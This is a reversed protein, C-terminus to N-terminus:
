PAGAEPGATRRLRSFRATGSAPTGTATDFHVEKHSANKTAANQPAAFIECAWGLAGAGATVSGVFMTGAV